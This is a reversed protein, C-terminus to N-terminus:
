RRDRGARTRYARRRLRAALAAIWGRRGQHSAPMLFIRLVAADTPQEYGFDAPEEVQAPVVSGSDEHM